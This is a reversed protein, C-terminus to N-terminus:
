KLWEVGIDCDCVSLLEITFLYEVLRSREGAGVNDTLGGGGGGGGKTKQKQKSKINTNIVNMQSLCFFFFSFFGAEGEGIM